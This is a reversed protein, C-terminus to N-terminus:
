WRRAIEYSMVQEGVMQTARFYEREEDFTLVRDRRPEGSLLEIKPPVNEVKGREVALRLMRRLVQLERNISATQLDKGRRSAIYATIKRVQVV